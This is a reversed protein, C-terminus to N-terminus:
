ISGRKRHIRYIYLSLPYTLSLTHSFLKLLSRSLSVCVFYLSLSTYIFVCVEVYEACFSKVRQLCEKNPRSVAESIAAAWLHMGDKRIPGDPPLKKKGMLVKM